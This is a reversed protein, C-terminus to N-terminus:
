PFPFGPLSIESAYLPTTAATRTLQQMLRDAVEKNGLMTKFAAELKQFEGRVTAVKVAFDKAADLTFAVGMMTGVSQATKGLGEIISEAESADRRLGSNDIGTALYLAGNYNLVGM